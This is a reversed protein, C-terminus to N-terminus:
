LVVETGGSTFTIIDESEEADVMKAIKLRAAELQAKAEKGSDYKSSPNAWANDCANTVAKIVEPAMKTTANNDLFIMQLHSLM